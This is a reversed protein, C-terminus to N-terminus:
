FNRRLNFNDFFLYLLFHAGLSNNEIKLFFRIIVSQFDPKPVKQHVTM